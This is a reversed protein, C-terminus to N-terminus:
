CMLDNSSYAHPLYFVLLMSLVFIKKFFFDHPNLHWRGLLGARTMKQDLPCLSVAGAQLIQIVGAPFCLAVTWSQSELFNCINRQGQQKNEVSVPSYTIGRGLGYSAWHGRWQSDRALIFLCAVCELSRRHGAREWMRGGARMKAIYDIESCLM